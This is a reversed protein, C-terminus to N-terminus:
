SQTTVETQTNVIVQQDPKKDERISNGKWASILDPVKVFGWCCGISILIYLLHDKDFMGSRLTTYTENWAVVIILIFGGLRTSSPEGNESLAKSIYDWKKWLFFIIFLGAFIILAYDAKALELKMADAVQKIGDISKM